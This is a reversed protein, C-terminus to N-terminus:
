KISTILKCWWNSNQIRNNEKYAFVKESPLINNRYLNSDVMLIIAEDNDLERIEVECDIIGLVELALKRRHGSILEYRGSEKRRVILPTLLGNEKISDALEELRSQSPSTTNNEYERITKNPENGGFGFYAAVDEKTMHRVERIYELRAGQSMNKLNPKIYFM